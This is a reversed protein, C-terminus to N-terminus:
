FGPPLLVQDLTLIVGNNATIPKETVAANNLMAGNSNPIGAIEVSTRELMTPVARRQKIDNENIQGIVLHYKLVKKLNEPESLKKRIRAPLAEFAENTPAFITVFEKEGVIEALDTKELYSTFTEFEELGFLMDTLNDESQYYNATPQFFSPNPYYYPRALVPFGILASIGAVGVFGVLKKHWIKTKITNM